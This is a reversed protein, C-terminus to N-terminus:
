GDDGFSGDVHGCCYSYVREQILEITGLTSTRGGVATTKKEHIKERKFKVWEADSNEIPLM